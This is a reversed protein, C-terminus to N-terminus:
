LTAREDIRGTANQGQTKTCPVEDVSEGMQLRCKHQWIIPFYASM